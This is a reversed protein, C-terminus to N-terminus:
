GRWAKIKARIAAREDPDPPDVDDALYLLWIQLLQAAADVLARSQDLEAALREITECLRDERASMTQTLPKDM